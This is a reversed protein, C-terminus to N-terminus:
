LGCARLFRARDFRPNEYQFTDAITEVISLVTTRDQEDAREVYPRLVQAFAEFHKKTM